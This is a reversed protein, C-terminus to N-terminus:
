CNPLIAEPVTLTLPSALPEGQRPSRPSRHQRALLAQQLRHYIRGAQGSLPLGGELDAVRLWFGVDKGQVEAAVRSRDVGGSYDALHPGPTSRAKGSM